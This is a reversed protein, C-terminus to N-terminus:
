RVKTWTVKTITGGSPPAPPDKHHGGSDEMGWHVHGNVVLRTVTGVGNYAGGSYYNVTGNANARTDALPASTGTNGCQRGAGRGM